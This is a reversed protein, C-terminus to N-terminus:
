ETIVQPFEDMIMIGNRECASTMAQDALEFQEGYNSDKYLQTEEDTMVISFVLGDQDYGACLFNDLM